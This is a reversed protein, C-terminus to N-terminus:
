LWTVHQVQWRIPEMMNYRQCSIILAIRSTTIVDFIILNYIITSEKIVKWRILIVGALASSPLVQVLITTPYTKRPISSLCDNMKTSFFRVFGLPIVEEMGRSHANKEIPVETRHYKDPYHHNRRATLSRYIPLLRLFLCERELWHRRCNAFCAGQNLPHNADFTARRRM